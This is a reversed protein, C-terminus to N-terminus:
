SQSGGLDAFTQKRYRARKFNSKHRRYGVSCVWPQKKKGVDSPHDPRYPLDRRFFRLVDPGKLLHSNDEKKEKKKSQGKIKIHLVARSKLDHTLVATSVVMVIMKSIATRISFLGLRSIEVGPAVHM